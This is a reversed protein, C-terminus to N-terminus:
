RIQIESRGRLSIILRKQDRNFETKATEFSIGETSEQAIRRALVQDPQKEVGSILVYYPKEAWGDVAFTVSGQDERIDSISCPAHIFWGRDALKKM